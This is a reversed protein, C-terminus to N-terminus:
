DAEGADSDEEADDTDERPELDVGCGISPLLTPISITLWCGPRVACGQIALLLVAVLLARGATM